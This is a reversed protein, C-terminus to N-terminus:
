RVVIASLGPRRAADALRGDRKIRQVFSEVTPAWAEDTQV